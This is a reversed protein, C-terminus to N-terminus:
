EPSPKGRESVVFRRLESAVEDKGYLYPGTKGWLLGHRTRFDYVPAPASPRQRLDTGFVERVLERTKWPETAVNMVRLGNQLVREIDAWLHDLGYWQLVADPHIQDVNNDHLLDYIINKKLGLGFLNPLRVVVADFRERAFEELTWRNRGYPAMRDPHPVSDEDVGVPRDYVDVTSILVFTGARVTRLSDTLKRIAERDAAPDLNAKWKLSSAGASVVLDYTKGEIAAIDASRYLDDFRHQRSLNGGVFGTHGILATTM